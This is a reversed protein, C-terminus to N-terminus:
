HRQWRHADDFYGNHMEEFCKLCCCVLDRAWEGPQDPLPEIGSSLGHVMAFAASVHFEWALVGDYVYLLDVLEVRDTTESGVALDSSIM